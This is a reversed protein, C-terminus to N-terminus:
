VQAKLAAVDDNSATTVFLFNTDLAYLFGILAM